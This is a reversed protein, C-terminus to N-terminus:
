NGRTCAPARLMQGRSFRVLAGGSCFPPNEVCGVNRPHTNVHTHTHIDSTIVKYMHLVGCRVCMALLIIIIIGVQRARVNRVHARVSLPHNQSRSGPGPIRSSCFRRDNLTRRPRNHPAWIHICIGGRSCLNHARLIRVDSPSTLACRCRWADPMFMENHINHATAHTRSPGAGFQTKQPSSLREASIYQFIRYLPFTHRIRQFHEVGCAM